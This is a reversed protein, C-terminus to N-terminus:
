LNVKNTFVNPTVVVEYTREVQLVQAGALGSRDGLEVEEGPRM